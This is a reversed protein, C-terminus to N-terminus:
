KTVKASEAEQKKVKENEKGILYLAGGFLVVFLIFPLLGTNEDIFMKLKRM